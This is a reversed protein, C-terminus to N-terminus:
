IACVFGYSSLGKPFSNEYTVSCKCWQDYYEEWGGMKCTRM